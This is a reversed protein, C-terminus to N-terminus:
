ISDGKRFRSESHIPLTDFPLTLNGSAQPLSDTFDSFRPLRNQEPDDAVGHSQVVPEARAHMVEFTEEGLASGSEWCSSGATTACTHVQM